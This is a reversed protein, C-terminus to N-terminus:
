GRVALKLGLVVAGIGVVNSLAVYALARVAEGGLLLRVTEIGFSSFTTFGGLFGVVPGIRLTPPLAGARAEHGAIAGLALCGLVNVALTGWPFAAAGPGVARQVAGGLFHRLLAGAAGGGAIALIMAM